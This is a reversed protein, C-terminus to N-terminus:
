VVRFWMVTELVTFDCWSSGSDEMDPVCSSGDRKDETFDISVFGRRDKEYFKSRFYLGMKLEKELM